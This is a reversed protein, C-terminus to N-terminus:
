MDFTKKKQQQMYSIIFLSYVWTCRQLHRQKMYLKLKTNDNAM